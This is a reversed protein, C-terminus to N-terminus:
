HDLRDNRDGNSGAQHHSLCSTASAYTNGAQENSPVGAHEGDLSTISAQENALTEQLNEPQESSHNNDEPQDPPNGRRRRTIPMPAQERVFQSYELQSQM